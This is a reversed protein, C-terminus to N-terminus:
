VARWGGAAYNEVELPHVDARAGDREMVVLVPGEPQAGGSDGDDSIDQDESVGALAAERAAKSIRAM